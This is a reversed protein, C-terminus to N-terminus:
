NLHLTRPHPRVADWSGARDLWEPQSQGGAGWRCVSFMIPTWMEKSLKCLCFQSKFIKLLFPFVSFVVYLTNKNSCPCLLKLRKRIRPLAYFLSLLFDSPTQPAISIIWPKLSATFHLIVWLCYVTSSPTLLILFWKLLLSSVQVM